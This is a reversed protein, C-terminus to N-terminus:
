QNKCLDLMVPFLDSVLMGPKKKEYLELLQENFWIFHIFGRYDIMFQELNKKITSFDATPFRDLAYLLFVSWTMYENFVSYPSSYGDSFKGGTWKKRNKFALNIEKLYLDSVPNVYNHNIETFLMRTDRAELLTASLNSHQTPSSVFIVLEDAHRNTAHYGYSLPSFVIRYQSYKSPFNKELWNYQSDIAGQSHMLNSLTDYYAANQKYFSRFESVLCFQSLDHLFPAVYDTNGWSINHIKTGKVINNETDFSYNAADMRIQNYYRPMKKGITKVAKENKFKGFHGIVRQYYGSRHDILLSDKIGLDTIAYIVFFLEHLEPVEVRISLEVTNKKINDKQAFLISASLLFVIGTCVTKIM